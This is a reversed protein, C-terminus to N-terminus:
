CAKKKQTQCDVLALFMAMLISVALAPYFGSFTWLFFFLELLWYTHDYPLMKTSFDPKQDRKKKLKINVIILLRTTQILWQITILITPTSCLTSYRLLRTTTTWKEKTKKKGSKTQKKTEKNKYCTCRGSM